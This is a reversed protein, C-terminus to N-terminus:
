YSRKRFSHPLVKFIYRALPLIMFKWLSLPILILLLYKFSNTNKQKSVAFSTNAIDVGLEQILAKTGAIIGAEFNGEKFQPTVQKRLINVVKADPYFVKM